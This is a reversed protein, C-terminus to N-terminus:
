TVAERRQNLKTTSDPVWPLSVVTSLHMALNAAGQSLETVEGSNVDRSSLGLRRVRYFCVQVLARPFHENFNHPPCLDKRQQHMLRGLDYDNKSYFNDSCTSHKTLIVLLGHAPSKRGKTQWLLSFLLPLLKIPGGFERWQHETVVPLDSFASYPREAAWLPAQLGTSRVTNEEWM